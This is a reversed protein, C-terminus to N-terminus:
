PAEVLEIRYSRTGLTNHRGLLLYRGAPLSTEVGGLTLERTQTNGHNHNGNRFVHDFGDATERYLDLFVDFAQGLATTRVIVRTTTALEFSWVVGDGAEAVTEERPVGFALPTPAVSSATLTYRTGPSAGSVTRLYRGTDPLVTIRRCDNACSTVFTANTSNGVNGPETEFFNTGGNGQVYDLVFRTAGPPLASLQLVAAGSPVEVSLPVGDDVVTAVTDGTEVSIFQTSFADSAPLEIFAEAGAPIPETVTQTTATNGSTRRATFAQQRGADAWVVHQVGVQLSDFRVTYRGTTPAVFRLVEPTVGDNSRTVTVAPGDVTVPIPSSFSGREFAGEVLRARRNATAGALYVVEGAELTVVCSTVCLPAIRIRDVRLGGDAPFGASAHFTYRGTAPIVFRRVGDDVTTGLSATPTVTDDDDFRAVVRLARGDPHRIRARLLGDRARPSVCRVDPAVADNVVACTGIVAGGAELWEVEPQVPVGAEDVAGGLHLTAYLSSVALVSGAEAAVLEVGVGAPVVLPSSATGVDGVSAVRISYRCGGVGATETVTLTHVGVALSSTLCTTHAGGRACRLVAADVAVTAELCSAGLEILHPVPQASSFVYHSTDDAAVRGGHAPGDVDLAVPAGPSGESEGVVGDDGARGEDGDCLLRDLRVTDVGVDDLDGDDNGDVGARLRRCGDLALDDVLVLADPGPQGVAGGDGQLGPCLTVAVDLEEASVGGGDRDVGARVLVGTGVACVVDEVTVTAALGAGDAGACLTQVVVNRDPAGDGDDDLGSRVEVGGTACPAGPALSTLTFARAAADAGAVGACFAVDGDLVEGEQLVGDGNDDLGSRIIVGAAACPPGDIAILDVLADRATPLAPPPQTDDFAVCGGAVIPFGLLWPTLRRM